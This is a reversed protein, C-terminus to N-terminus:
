VTSNCISQSSSVFRCPISWVHCQGTQQIKLCLNRDTYERHDGCGTHSACVLSYYFSVFHGKLRIILSDYICLVGVTFHLSVSLFTQLYTTKTCSCALVSEIKCCPWTMRFNIWILRVKIAKIVERCDYVAPPTVLAVLLDEFDGHTDGELDAKLTQHISTSLLFFGCIKSSGWSVWKPRHRQRLM